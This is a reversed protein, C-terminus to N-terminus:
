RIADRLVDQLDSFVTPTHALIEKTLSVGDALKDYREKQDSLEGYLSDLLVAANVQREWEPSFVAHQTTNTFKPDGGHSTIWGRTLDETVPQSSFSVRRNLVAAIAAPQLLFNEFMRRPLFRILDRSSTRLGKKDEESLGEADFIFALTRPVLSGSATLRRYIDLVLEVRKRKGQFESVSRVALISLVMHSPPLGCAKLILPFAAEETAGEVWLVNDAGFVDSLRVGLLQLCHQQSELDSAEVQRVSTSPGDRELLILTSPNAARIIEPSHTSLLYQHHPFDKLIQILKRSAGPHLFSNPEDIIISQPNDANLVVYLIALVQGIGTGSEALTFALDARGTAEPENWMVIEQAGGSGAKPRVSLYAIGPFVERLLGLLEAFRAPKTTQLMHIVEALNSANRQLETAPGFPAEGLALREAKFAYIRNAVMQGVRFFVDTDDSAGVAGSFEFSGQRVNFIYYPRNNQTGVGDYSTIAPFRTQYFGGSQGHGYRGFALEVEPLKLLDHLLRIASDRDQQWGRGPVALALQSQAIFADELEVTSIIVSFSAESRPPLPRTSRPLAQLSRHPHGSFTLALAELLATKGSNNRGVVVNFGPELKLPAHGTYCKYNEIAFSHLRM